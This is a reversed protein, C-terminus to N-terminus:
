EDFSELSYKFFRTPPPNRPNQGFPYQIDWGLFGYHASLGHYMALQLPSKSDANGFRLEELTEPNLKIWQPGPVILQGDVKLFRNNRPTNGQYRKAGPARSTDCIKKGFFSYHKFQYFGSRGPHVAPSPDFGVPQHYVFHHGCRFLQDKHLYFSDRHERRMPTGSLFLVRDFVDVVPSAPDSLDVMLPKHFPAEKYQSMREVSMRGVLFVNETSDADQYETIWTPRFVAEADDWDREGTRSVNKAEHFVKAVLGDTQRTVVCCWARFDKGFSGVALVRQEGSDNVLPIINLGHEAPPLGQEEGCKMTWQLTAPDLIRLGQNRSAVWIDQGDWVVDSFEAEVDVIAEELLGKERMVMVVGTGWWVDVEGCQTLTIEPTRMEFDRQGFQSNRQMWTQRKLLEVKGDLTKLNIQIESRKAVGALTAVPGDLGGKGGEPPDPFRSPREASKPRLQNGLMDRDFRLMHMVMELKRDSLRLRAQKPLDKSYPVKAYDKKFQDIEAVIAKLEASTRPKEGRRSDRAAVIKTKLRSFRALWQANTNDSNEWRDLLRNLERKADENFRRNHARNGIYSWLENPIPIRDPIVEMVIRDLLEPEFRRQEIMSQFLYGYWREWLWIERDVFFKNPTMLAPQQTKFDRPLEFVLPSMRLFFDQHQQDIANGFENVMERPLGFLGMTEWNGSMLVVDNASIMENRIMFEMHGLYARFATVRSAAIRKATEAAVRNREASGLSANNSTRSFVSFDPHESRCIAIYDRAARIRFSADRPKLLIAAERLSCSAELSGTNAFRDAEAILWDVQSFKSLAIRDSSGDILTSPLTQTLFESVESLPLQKRTVTPKQNASQITLELQLQLTKEGIGSDTTPLSEVKYDASVLTLVPRNQLEDANGAALALEKQIARAEDIEIAAVGPLTLLGSQLQYQFTTQLYAYDYVLDRSKFPAVGVINKIGDEFRVRIAEAATACQGALSEVQQNDWLLDSVLLRAGFDCDCIVVSLTKGDHGGTVKTADTSGTTLFILRDAKLLQGIAQRAASDAENVPRAFKLEDAIESILKRDVLQFSQDSLHSTLLDDLGSADVDDSCIIAWRVSDDKAVEQAIAPGVSSMQTLLLIVAPILLRCM